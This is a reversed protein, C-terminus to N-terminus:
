FKIITYKDTFYRTTLCFSILLLLMPMGGSLVFATALLSLSEAYRMQLKFVPGVCLNKAEKM